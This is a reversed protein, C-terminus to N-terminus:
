SNVLSKSDANVANVHGCKPCQIEPRGTGFGPPIKLKLGCVCTIFQFNYTGMILDGVARKRDSIKTTDEPASAKRLPVQNDYEKLLSNPVLPTYKGKISSYADQYSAYNAGYMMARLIKIREYLPPHTSTLNYAKTGAKRLPNVIYLAATVKNATKLEDTSQSIKELASALGEPYRTLRVASADALYERRRSIAFYLFRALIPGVIAFVVALIILVIQLSGTSRSRSRYRLSGGSSFSLTKLFVESIIVISGLMTGAFTMFLIDRNMIHSMEHAIVGQLEDRNLSTLLGATVAISSTKLDRGTAFANPMEEDVIYIKPMNHLNAAIQMEEVVNYLKPLAERSVEHAHSMKLIVSSGAYYSVISLIGWLMLALIIGFIDGGGPFILSGILYGLVILCLGMGFFLGVSKRKNAQILEWM